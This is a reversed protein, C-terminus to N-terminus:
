QQSKAIIKSTSHGDHFTLITVEGGHQTVHDYGAIDEAKYDGGKVLVNPSVAEILRQPTDEAFPVVWDVCELSALMEMREAVGNIPRSEGKLRKVSADDNVAVVLRDGLRRAEQLYRIHGVHLIDFCGNTMVVREGAESAAHVITLLEPESFVGIGTGWHRVASAQLEAQSVTATGVKGVVVGAALNAVKMAQSLNTQLMCAAFTAIVTDGAGTVDFVELAQTPIHEIGEETILSMGKESRTLLLAQLQLQQRLAEGQAPLEVDSCEGMVGEFESMNPTIVDAGTYVSFNTGKPDVVVAKGAQKALLILSRVYQLAGKAYDSFVVVDYRELLQKFQAAFDAQNYAANKEEFDVRLLQQQRSLVRLKTITPASNYYSFHADVGQQELLSTLTHGAEDDGIVGLLGAKCGLAVLNAAVNAAGGARDETDKYGVVPVPAEPSMRSTNGTWYRDLMVDGVVLVAVDNFVPIAATM